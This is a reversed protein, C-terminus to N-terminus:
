IKQLTQTNLFVTAININLKCIEYKKIVTGTDVNLKIFENLFIVSLIQYRAQWLDQVILSNYYTLYIKQLKKEM